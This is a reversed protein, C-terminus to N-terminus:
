RLSERVETMFIKPLTGLDEVMYFRGGGADAIQSLLNRDARTIGVILARM